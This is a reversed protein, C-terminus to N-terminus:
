SKCRGFRKAQLPPIKALRAADELFFPTFPLESKVGGSSFQVLGDDSLEIAGLSVPHRTVISERLLKQFEGADSTSALEEPALKEPFM